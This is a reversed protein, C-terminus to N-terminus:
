VYQIDTFTTGDVNTGTTTSVLSGGVYDYVTTSTLVTSGTVVTMSGPHFQDETGRSTNEYAALIFNRSIDEAGKSIWYNVGEIDGARDLVRGYIGGYTTAPLPPPAPVIVEGGGSTPEWVSWDFVPCGVYSDVFVDETTSEFVTPLDRMEVWDDSSPIISMVGNWSIVQFPNINTVRSSLQQQAFVTETFPLMLYGNKNVYGTSSGTQLQLPCDLSEIQPQLTNGVFTSAFGASTTRAIRLPEKFNEVLYGTKFKDLGTVADVINTGTVSLESATLTAFDEVREIRHVIQKIDNMTFREVDLRQQIVDNATKTYEPIYLINLAFQNDPITPATPTENPIGTLVNIVGSPDITVIDIRPVYFQLSTAFSTAPIVLSNKSANTGTFLGDIGVSPRFDICGALNYVQGTAPSTYNTNQELIDPTPPYSDVCFFDGTGSHAYYAYTVTVTAVSVPAGQKLVLYSRNYAYDTQGNYFIYNASVDAGSETISTISIVDPKDLTLTTVGSSFNNTAGTTLTKTKPTIATKTVAAYVTVNTSVPGGTLTLTQSGGGSVAFLTYQVITGSAEQIAVFNGAEIPDFAEGAGLAVSGLGSGNTAITLQKQVTYTEDFLNSTINKISKSITKPLQFICSSQGVSVVMSKGTITGTAATSTVTDGVKPADKTHDHKYAYLTSSLADWYKITATRTSATHTIVQGVVFGATTVPIQYQGLVYMSKSGTYRIGGVSDITNSGSLVIDTVWLKYVATSTVDGALYDIGIVKATGLLTASGNAPDNDNYLSISEHNSISFGGVFDSVILYQGYSPRLLAKTSKIHDSTRAKNINVKTSSIKDVEFGHIYAKGASTEVVLKTTDGGNVSDYVGGNSNRKLHERVVPNIGSVVYNGSEDFTRRALSKELESYQPYRSHEELVGVNYRMLEIYDQTLTTGLPVSVLILDIKVRDSGPATFNYSGQAPDSLTDDEQATVITEVIQLLVHCSPTSSFKSIVVSQADVQAFTGNVYFVGKNIYALSGVGTAASPQLTARVGTSTSVYIEENNAFQLVGSSNGSIYSLYFMIPDAGAAAVTKKIVATVGSTVGVITKGEWLSLTLPVASFTPMLQIYPVGLDAITNGPIVVSGHKFIHNGFKEIQNRLITQLQSLERSQVAFSPKFLIQYFKKNEDYDDYYPTINYKKSM